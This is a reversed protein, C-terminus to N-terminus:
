KMLKTTFVGQENSLKLVYVGSMLNSVDVNSFQNHEFSQVLSGNVDFIEVLGKDGKIRLQNQIPNPYVSVNELTQNRVGLTNNFVLNDLAFYAPTNMGWQGNDSSEFSFTLGYVSETIASLDVTQWADLIYDENNDSSRFDALYVEVSDIRETNQGLAVIWIKFFDAGNTGDPNGDAGNISGFQKGFSDGDRMSLATYTTNAVQISTLNVSTPELGEVGNNHFTISGSSAYVGYNISSEGGSGAFSAYQNSYGPTTVDTVNSVSFGSWSGWTSNYNNAFFVGSLTFGGSEDSGNNYSESMLTIGEFGITQQAQFTLSSM